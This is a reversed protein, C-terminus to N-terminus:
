HHLRGRRPRRARTRRRVDEPVALTAAIATATAQNIPNGDLDRLQYPRGTQLIAWARTVLKRAVACTAKTHNHNRQTMLRRYTDALQPDHRRAVNAAQYYALRLEPPGEKTIPRSPAASLGSEWNSPNLGVFSSAAKASRLWRGDGWWGRTAAATVPGIGAVTLLVDDPWGRRWVGLAQGAARTIRKDADAIDTCLETIEWGIADLDLRGDWFRHWGVAYDHIRQARRVPDRDRTRTAVLETISSVRARALSGPHPWRALIPQALHHGGCARWVDPFLWSALSWLRCECRHADVTARHRRRLARRVGIQDASPLAAATVSLVTECGALMEADIVDTKNRGTIAERLRASDRNQVLGLRCGADAVAWSLTLWTGSTPEAIVLAGAYRSLRETLKAMGALTPPVRFDERIGDGRVAVQHDAVVAADIGITVGPRNVQNM